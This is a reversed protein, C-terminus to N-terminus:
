YETGPQYSQIGNNHAHVYQMWLLVSALGGGLAIPWVEAGAKWAVFMGVFVFVGAQALGLRVWKMLTAARSYANIETTQPSSNTASIIDYTLAAFIAMVAAPGNNGDV